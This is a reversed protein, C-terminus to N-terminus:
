AFRAYINKQNEPTAYNGEFSIEQSTMKIYNVPTHGNTWNAGIDVETPASLMAKKEELYLEPCHLASCVGTGLRVIHVNGKRTFLSVGDQNGPINKYPDICLGAEITADVQSPVTWFHKLQAGTNEIGLGIHGQATRFYVPNSVGTEDPNTYNSGMAFNIGWGKKSDNNTDNGGDPNWTIKQAHAGDGHGRTFFHIHGRTNWTSEGDSCLIIPAAYWTTIGIANNEVTGSSGDGARNQLGFWGLYMDEDSAGEALPATCDTEKQWKKRIWHMMGESGWPGIRFYNQADLMGIAKSTTAGATFKAGKSKFIDMVTVFGAVTVDKQGTAKANTNSYQFHLPWFHGQLRRDEDSSGEIPLYSNLTDIGFFANQELSNGEGIGTHGGSSSASANYLKIGSLLEDYVAKKHLSVDDDGPLPIGLAVIGRTQFLNGQNQKGRWASPYLPGTVQDPPLDSSPRDAGVQANLAPGIAINGYIHTPGILDTEAINVLHGYDPDDPGSGGMIHFRGMDISGGYIKINNAVVDGNANVYFGLGGGDECQGPTGNEDIPRKFDWPAMLYQYECDRNGYDNGEEGKRNYIKMVFSDNAHSPRHGIGIESGQIRGGVINSGIIVGMFVGNMAWLTGDYTVMFNRNGPISLTRFVKEYECWTILGPMLGTIHQGIEIAPTTSARSPGFGSLIQINNSEDVQDPDKTLVIDDNWFYNISKCGSNVPLAGYGFTTEEGNEDLSAQVDNSTYPLLSGYEEADHSGDAYWYPLSGPAKIYAKEWVQRFWFPLKYASITNPNDDNVGFYRGNFGQTMYGKDGNPVGVTPPKPKDPDNEAEIAKQEGGDASKDGTVEDSSDWYSTVNLQEGSTAHTLDCLTLRMSNWMPDGIAPSSMLGNGGGYITANTGDFIIRGGRDARGFFGTGNELLAFSQVGDQYGFLGTLYPMHKNAEEDYAGTMGPIESRKYGRDAGMLVGTFANTSPRKYGAGVTVAFITGDKENMDIGQGDWGNIDVNGYANLYMVQNRLYIGNGFPSSKSQLALVGWFGEAMNLHPKARYYISVKQTKKDTLRELTQTLPTLNYTEYNIDEKSLRAGYKFYLPDPFVSPDYGSANYTVYQPWNTSIKKIVDFYKADNRDSFNIKDYNLLIDVPYYSVISHIRECNGEIQIKKTKQDYQGKMIDVQAKVIFRYLMDQMTAGTGYKHNDFFRVEVAGYAEKEFRGDLDAYHKSPYVTFGILGGDTKNEEDKKNVKSDYYNAMQGNAQGAVDIPYRPDGGGTEYFEKSRSFMAGTKVMDTTGDVHFLRLFAAYKNLDGDISAPMRVDWYVKYFYGEFPDMSELPVGNKKVFPRLFVRFDKDQKWEDGDQYLILPAPYDLAEVYAGEEKDEGYKWNCPKIQASWEAGITGMDGDKTFFVTKKFDYIIGQVTEVRVTYTNDKLEPDYQNKVQFHITNEFDVWMNTMMSTDCQGSKGSEEPKKDYYKRNSLPTVGDPGFITIKYDSARGEAWSIQPELTNDKEAAWDKIVGLADYNFTDRGIWDCLLSGPSDDTTIIDKRLTTVENVQVKAEGTNEPDAIYPDYCQVYFIAIDNLLFDNIKFPGHHYPNSIRTYSGDQLQLWWTGFWDKYNEGTTKDIKHVDKNKNNIRLFVERGDKSTEQEIVLDYPSDLRVILQEVESRNIEPQSEVGLDRYVIVCKYIWQFQVAEKMVTLTHSPSISYGLDGEEILKEIPYWGPGGYDYWTNGHEDADQEPIPTASTVDSKQRYWKVEIAEPSQEILDIPGKQLHPILDVTPRGTPRFQDPNADYLTDGFPLEIWPFFMTETLNVKEAFRIDINSVFINNRDLIANDPNFSISGDENYTPLIDALMAGDQMLSISYLGKIAGKLPYYGKQPTDAIYSYPAGSFQQFGLDFSTINYKKQKRANAMQIEFDLIKEDYEKKYQEDNNYRDEDKTAEFKEKETRIRIYEEGLSAEYDPHTEDEIYLPNEVICQVRLMYQGERHISSFQTRFSASIMISNYITSYRNLQEDAEALEEDTMYTFPHAYIPSQNGGPAREFSFNQWYAQEEIMDSETGDPNLAKRAKLYGKNNDEVACIKAERSGKYWDLWNPGKIIYFNTLDSLNANSDGTNKFKVSGLIIKEASYDGRPVLVYVQDGKAFVNTPDVAKASFTNGQYSVKYEGIETNVLAVIEGEITEDRKQADVNAQSITNIAGFFNEVLNSSM